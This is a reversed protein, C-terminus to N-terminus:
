TLYNTLDPDSDADFVLCLLGRDSEASLIEKPPLCLHKLKLGPHLSLTQKDIKEILSFDRIQHCHPCPLKTEPYRNIPQYITEPSNHCGVQSCHIHTLIPNRLKVVIAGYGGQSLENFYDQVLRDRQYPLPVNIATTPEHHPCHPSVKMTVKFSHWPQLSVFIKEGPSLLRDDQHLYLLAQEVAIAGVISALPATTPVANPPLQRAFGQCSFRQERKAWMSSSITCEYCGHDLSTPDFWSIEGQSVGIGTNIWPIGAAYALQNLIWRANISDLCGIMLDHDAITGLGM